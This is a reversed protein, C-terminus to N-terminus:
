PSEYSTYYNTYYYYNGCPTDLPLTEGHGDCFIVNVGAPHGSSLVRSIETKAADVKTQPWKFCLLDETTDIWVGAMPSGAATEMTRESLMLTNQASRVDNLSVNLPNTVTRNVFCAGPPQNAVVPEGGNAVYSLEEEIGASVAHDEPCVLQSVKPTPPLNPHNPDSPAVRWDRWEKWLDERGLYPFSVIVWSLHQSGAATVIPNNIYGPFHDIANAYQIVARGVEKLNNLCQGQRAVRRAGGIAPMLMAVLLAIVVVVVMLEVLTFGCRARRAM